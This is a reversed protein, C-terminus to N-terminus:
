DELIQVYAQNTKEDGRLKSYFIDEGEFTDLGSPLIHSFPIGLSRLELIAIVPLDLFDIGSTRKAAARYGMEIAKLLEDRTVLVHSFTLSPGIYAKLDSIAVSYAITLAKIENKLKGELLEEKTYSALAAFRGDSSYLILPLEDAVDLTLIEGKKATAGLHQVKKGLLPEDNKGIFGYQIKGDIKEIKMNM